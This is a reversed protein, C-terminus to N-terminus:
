PEAEELFLQYTLGYKEHIYSLINNLQIDNQGDDCNETQLRQDHMIQVNLISCSHNDVLYVKMGSIRVMTYLWLDDAKPCITMFIDKLLIDRTLNKAPFLTGGGSGFALSSSPNYKVGRWASYPAVGNQTFAVTKAYRAIVTNPHEVHSNWLKEIMNSPYIIDDDVTVVYENRPDQFAYFYKKHSRLNEDVFVIESKKSM